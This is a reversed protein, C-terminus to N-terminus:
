AGAPMGRGTEASSASYPRPRVLCPLPSHPKSMLTLPPVAMRGSLPSTRQSMPMRSPRIQAIRGGPSSLESVRSFSRRSRCSQRKRPQDVSVQVKAERFLGVFVGALGGGSGNATHCRDQAVEQVVLRVAVDELRFKWLNLFTGMHIESEMERGGLLNMELLELAAHVFVAHGGEFVEHIETAVGPAVQAEIAGVVAVHVIQQLLRRAKGFGDDDHM